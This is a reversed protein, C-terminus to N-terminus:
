GMALYMHLGQCRDLILKSFQPLVKMEGFKIGAGAQPHKAVIGSTILLGRDDEDIVNFFANRKCNFGHLGIVGRFKLAWKMPM